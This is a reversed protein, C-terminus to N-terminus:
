DDQLAENIFTNLKKVDDVQEKVATGFGKNYADYTGVGLGYLAGGAVGLPAALVAAPATMVTAGVKAPLNFDSDADWVESMAKVVAKPTNIAVSVGAGVATIGASVAGALIGEAAGVVNIDFPKEGAELPESQYEALEQIMEGAMDNHFRGVDKFGESIANAIGKQAEDGSAEVGAEAFGRYAGFLISGIATLPPTLAAAIPLTVAIATKLIPGIKKEEALAGYAHFLAQPTKVISSATNGVGEIVAVIPAAVLGKGLDGWSFSDEEQYSVAVEKKEPAPKQQAQIRKAQIKPAQIKM